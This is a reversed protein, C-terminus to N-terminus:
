EANYQRGYKRYWVSVVASGIAAGAFNALIDDIDCLGLQFILQVTEILVSLLLGFSVGEAFTKGRRKPIAAAFGGVPIFLAINMLFHRLGQSGEVRLWHFVEMQFRRNAGDERMFVTIYFVALVYAIELSLVRSRIEPKKRTFCCIKWIWYLCGYVAAIGYLIVGADQLYQVLLIVMCVAPVYVLLGILIVAFVSWRRGARSMIWALFIFYGTVALLILLFLIM